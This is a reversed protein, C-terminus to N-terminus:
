FRKTFRHCYPEGGTKDYYGQHYSEAPYFLTAPEVVTQVELGQKRLRAIVSEIVQKQQASFYYFVSRYQHGVDPGQRDKQTPDHIEFFAQAITQFSTIKPDILIEVAEAHGTKGSCVESYNPNSVTGGTYGVTTKVVGELGKLLHEVGWFCGGAVVIKEFGEKTYAPLFLMSLSNVCHRQNKPTYGEGEFVHGLHGNCNMCLIEIRRGDADRDREVAGEIEEDFSPWGCHSSFKSQSLYLPAACQRCVYIGDRKEDTYEGTNPPETGKQLIIKEENSNLQRYRKM